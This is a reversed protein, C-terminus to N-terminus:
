YPIRLMYLLYTINYSYRNLRIKINSHFHCTLVSSGGAHYCEVNASRHLFILSSVCLSVLSVSVKAIWFHTVRLYSHQKPPRWAHKACGREHYGATIKADQTKPTNQHKEGLPGLFSVGNKGLWTKISAVVWRVALSTLRISSRPCGSDYSPSCNQFQPARILSSRRVPQIM